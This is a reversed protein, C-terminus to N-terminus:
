REFDDYEPLREKQPEDREFGLLHYELDGRNTYECEKDAFSFVAFVTDSEVHCDFKIENGFLRAKSCLENAISTYTEAVKEVSVSDGIMELIQEAKKEAEASDLSRCVTEDYDVNFYKHSEQRSYLYQFEDVFNRVKEKTEEILEADIDAQTINIHEIDM